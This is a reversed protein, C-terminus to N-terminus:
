YFPFYIIKLHMIHCLPFIFHFSTKTDISNERLFNNKTGKKPYYRAFYIQKM